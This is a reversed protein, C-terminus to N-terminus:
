SIIFLPDSSCFTEASKKDPHRSVHTISVHTIRYNHQYVQPTAPDTPRRRAGSAYRTLDKPDVQGHTPHLASLSTSVGSQEWLASPHCSDDSMTENFNHANM